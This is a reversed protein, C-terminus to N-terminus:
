PSWIPLLAEHDLHVLSVMLFGLNPEVILFMQSMLLDFVVAKMSKKERREYDSELWGPFQPRVQM